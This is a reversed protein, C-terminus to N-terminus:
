RLCPTHTFNRNPNSHFDLLIENMIRSRNEFFLKRFTLSDRQPPKADNLRPFRAGFAPRTMAARHGQRQAPINESFCDVLDLLRKAGM